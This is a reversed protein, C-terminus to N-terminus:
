SAPTPLEKSIGYDVSLRERDKSHNNTKNISMPPNNSKPGDVPLFASAVWAEAKDVEGGHVQISIAGEPRLGLVFALV